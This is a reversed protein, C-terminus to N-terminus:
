LSASRPHGLTQMRESCDQSATCTQWLARMVVHGEPVHKHKVAAHLHTAQHILQRGGRERPLKTARALPCIHPHHMRILYMCSTSPQCCQSQTAMSSCAHMVFICVPMPSWCLLSTCVALPLLSVRHASACLLAGQLLESLCCLRALRECHCAHPQLLPALVALGGQSEPVQGEPSLDQCTFM